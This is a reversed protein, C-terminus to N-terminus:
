NKVLFDIGELFKKYEDTQTEEFTSNECLYTFFNLMDKLTMGNVKNSQSVKEITKATNSIEEVIEQGNYLKLSNVSLSKAIDDFIFNWLEVPTGMSYKNMLSSEMKDYSRYFQLPGAAKLAKKQQDESLSNFMNKVIETNEIIYTYNGTVLNHVYLTDLYGEVLMKSSNEPSFDLVSGYIIRPKIHIYTDLKFKEVFNIFLGIHEGGIQIAVVKKFGKDVAMKVPMNYYVGGDMYNQGSIKERVFLPFNGSAAVYDILQGQPIDEVYLMKPKMATVDFTVLGMNVPSNRIKEESLAAELTKKLPDINIIGQDIIKKGLEEIEKFPLKIIDTLVKIGSENLLQKIEPTMDMVESDKLTKWLDVAKTVDGQAVAASNIAGVSTGYVGGFDYGLDLLAKWAGIEYAGKAGGGSLVLGWKEEAAFSLISLLIILTILICKM